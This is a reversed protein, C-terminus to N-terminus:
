SAIWEDFTKLQAGNRTVDGGKGNDACALYIEYEQELTGSMKTQWDEKIEINMNVGEDHYLSGRNGVDSAVRTRIAYKALGTGDM